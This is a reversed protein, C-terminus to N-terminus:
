ARNAFLPDTGGDTRASHQLYSGKNGVKRFMPCISCPKPPSASNIRARLERYRAGKWIEEMSHEHLNGMVTGPVCCAAVDGNGLIVASEWPAPCPRHGTEECGHFAPPAGLLLGLTGALELAERRAQNYAKPRHWLSEPEMDPTYAHIHAANIGDAGVEATLRVFEIWEDLNSAM